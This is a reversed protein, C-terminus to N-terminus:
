ADVVRGADLVVRRDCLAYARDVDHTALVLGMGAAVLRRLVVDLEGRSAPDLSVFPEDLLLVAPEMALVGALALRRQEGGSLSYPHRAGFRDAPLGVTTLAREVARGVREQDWGLQRPGFAVDDRCTSAFLQLEPTQFVLGVRRQRELYGPDAAALRDILVEGRDPALLGRLLQLLTSKGSGTPGLLALREGAGVTLDVDRLAEVGAAGEDYWFSVDRCTLGIGDGEPAAAPPSPAGPAPTDPAAPALASASAPALAPAFAAAQGPATRATTPTPLAAMLEDLSLPLRSVVGRAVLGAGIEAAPPLGLSLDRVLAGDAFLGAPRGDFVRRGAALAVVRDAPVVEDMEQTILVVTLGGAAARRVAELVEDRGAPDLMATPEDLVLVRRPIALVGALATRQKQGGSLLHPERHRLDILDFEALTEDVRQAIDHPPLALNELGFALDEEVTAGVLQNDPNQFLVGVDRRVAQHGDDTLLDHGCVAAELAAAPRALGGLLRALTSKGSGNAGVVAVFEGEDVTLDLGALADSTAGAYRFVLGTVEILAM